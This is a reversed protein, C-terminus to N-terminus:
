YTAEVYGVGNIPCFVTLEQGTNVPNPQKGWFFRVDRGASVPLYFTDVQGLISEKQRHHDCCSKHEGKETCYVQFYLSANSAGSTNRAIVGIQGDVYDLEVDLTSSAGKEVKGKHYDQYFKNCYGSFTNVELKDFKGFITAVYYGNSDTKAYDIDRVVSQASDKVKGRYGILVVDFGKIPAGNKKNTVHGSITTYLEKTCGCLLIFFLFASLLIRM